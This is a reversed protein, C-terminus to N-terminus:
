NKIEVKKRLYYKVGKGEEMSLPVVTVLEYGLETLFNLIEDETQMGGSNQMKSQAKLLAPDSLKQQSKADGDMNLQYAGPKGQVKAVAYQYRFNEKDSSKDAKKAETKKDAETKMSSKEQASASVLFLSAMAAFIISKFHIRKM